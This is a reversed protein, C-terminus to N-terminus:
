IEHAIRNILDRSDQPKLTRNTLQDLVSRYRSLQAEADLFECGHETDLEVTDLGPM